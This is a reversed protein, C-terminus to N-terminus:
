VNGELAIGSLHKLPSDLFHYLNKIATPKLWRFKCPNIHTKLWVIHIGYNQSFGHIRGSINRQSFDVAIFKVTTFKMPNKLCGRLNFCFDAIDARDGPTAAVM